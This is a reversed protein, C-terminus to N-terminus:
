RFGDLLKRDEYLAEYVLPVTFDRLRAAFVLEHNRGTIDLPDFQVCNVRRVHEVIGQKGHLSRPPLLNQHALM